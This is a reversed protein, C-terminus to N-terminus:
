GVGTSFTCEPSFRFPSDMISLSEMAIYVGHWHTVTAGGGQTKNTFLCGSYSPPPLTAFPDAASAAGTTPLPNISGGNTNSYNGVVHLTSATVSSGSVTMAASNSSDVYIRCGATVTAGNSASFAGAMTPNLVYLCSAASGSLAATARGSIVGTKTAWCPPFYSRFPKGPSGCQADLVIPHSRFRHPVAGIGAAM